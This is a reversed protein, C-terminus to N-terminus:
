YYKLTGTDHVMTWQKVLNLHVKSKPSGYKPSGYKPSSFLEGLDWCYLIFKSVKLNDDTDASNKRPSFNKLDNKNHSLNFNELSQYIKKKYTINMM